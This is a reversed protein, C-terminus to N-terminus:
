SGAPTAHRASAHCTARRTKILAPFLVCKAENWQFATLYRRLPVGDM